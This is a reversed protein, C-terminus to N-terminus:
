PLVSRLEYVAAELRDVARIVSDDQQSSLGVRLLNRALVTPRIGMMHAKAELARLEAPDLRVSFVVSAGTVRRKSRPALQIAERRRELADLERQAIAIRGERTDSEQVGCVTHAAVSL